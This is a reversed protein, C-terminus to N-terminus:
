YINAILTLTAFILESELGHIAVLESVNSIFMLCLNPYWGPPLYAKEVTCDAARVSKSHTIPQQM